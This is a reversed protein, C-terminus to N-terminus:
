DGRLWKEIQRREKKTPRGAGRPRLGQVRAALERENGREPRPPSHDVYCRAALVASIRRAPLRTVELRYVRRGKVVEIMEGGQLPTAPKARRGDVEVAGGRCARAADARTRFVRVAHLWRDIRLPSEERLNGAM